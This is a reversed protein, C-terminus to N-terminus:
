HSLVQRGFLEFAVKVPDEDQDVRQHYENRVKQFASDTPENSLLKQTFRIAQDPAIKSKNEAPSEISARIERISEIREATKRAEESGTWKKGDFRSSYHLQMFKRMEERYEDEGPIQSIRDVASDLFLVDEMDAKITEISPGYLAYVVIAIQLPITVVGWRLLRTRFSLRSQDIGLDLQDNLRLKRLLEDAETQYDKERGFYLSLEHNFIDADLRKRAWNSPALSADDLLSRIENEKFPLAKYDFKRMESLLISLRYRLILQESMRGRLFELDDIARLRGKRMLDWNNSLDSLYHEAESRSALEIAGMPTDITMPLSKSLLAAEVRRYNNRFRATKITLGRINAPLDRYRTMWEQIEEVIKPFQDPAKVALRIKQVSGDEMFYFPYTHGNARELRTLLKGNLGPPTLYGGPRIDRTDRTLVTKIKEIEDTDEKTLLLEACKQNKSLEATLASSSLCGAIVGLGIILNQFRANHM